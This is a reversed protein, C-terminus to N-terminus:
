NEKFFTELSYGAVPKFKKKFCSMGWIGECNFCDCASVYKSRIEKGCCDCELDLDLEKADEVTAYVTIGDFEYFGNKM